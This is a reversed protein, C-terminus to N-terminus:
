RKGGMLAKVGVWQVAMYGVLLRFWLTVVRILVTAAGALISAEKLSIALPAALLPAYLSTMVIEPLGVEGPVGLPVTEIANSVSFVIMLVSLPVLHGLSLFVLFSVLLYSLWSVLSFVIPLVLSRPKRSLAEIGQRFAKLMKQARARLQDLRWRGRSLFVILRLVWDIIKWTTQERVSLICLFVLGIATCITVILLLGIISGPLELKIISFTSGIILASLIIAMNLIRHGVLSAVVKGTNGGSNKSMLYAKSIDGSIAEAPILLDIFHGVWVYLFIKRLPPKISLPILFHQWALSYLFMHLFIAVFALSYFLLNARQLNQVIEGIGVFFHLFLVFILLGILLLPVTKKMPLPKEMTM